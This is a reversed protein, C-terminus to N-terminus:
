SGSRAPRLLSALRRLLGVFTLAWALLAVYLMIVPIPLLFTLGTAHALHFTCVAYMGLPFVL